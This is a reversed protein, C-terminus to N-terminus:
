PIGPFCDGRNIGSGAAIAGGGSLSDAHWRCFFQEVGSAREEKALKPDSEHGEDVGGGEDDGVLESAVAFGSEGDAEGRFETPTGDPLLDDVAFEIGGVDGASEKKGDEEAGV